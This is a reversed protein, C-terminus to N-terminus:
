LWSAKVGQRRISAFCVTAEDKAENGTVERKRKRYRERGTHSDRGDTKADEALKSLSHTTTDLRRSGSGAKTPSMTGVQDRGDSKWVM